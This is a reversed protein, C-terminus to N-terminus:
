IIDTGAPINATISSHNNADFNFLETAYDALTDATVPKNQYKGAKVNVTIKKDKEKSYSCGTPTDCTVTEETIAFVPSSSLLASIILCLSKKPCSIQNVIM